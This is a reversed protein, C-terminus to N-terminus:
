ALPNNEILFSSKTSTKRPPPPVYGEPGLDQDKRVYGPTDFTSYEHGRDNKGRKTGNGTIVRHALQHSLNANKQIEKKREERPREMLILDGVRIKGDAGVQNGLTMGHNKKTNETQGVIPRSSSEPSAGVVDDWGRKRNKANNVARDRGFKYSKKPDANLVVLAGEGRDATAQELQDLGTCEISTMFKKNREAAKIVRKQQKLHMDCLSFGEKITSGCREGNDKIWECSQIPM